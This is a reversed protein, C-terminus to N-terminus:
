RGRFIRRLRALWGEGYPSGYAIREGRWMRNGGGLGGGSRGRM